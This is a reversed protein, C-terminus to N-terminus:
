VCPMLREAHMALAGDVEEAFRGYNVFSRDGFGLVAFKWGFRDGRRSIAALFGRASNPAEGAGYTSTLVLVASAKPYVTFDRLSAIHVDRGALSLQGALYRAFGWTSGSESGVLAVLDAAGAPVSAATRRGWRRLGGVWIAVGSVAFVPVTLVGLGLALALLPLGEGTHLAKVWELGVQAPRLPEESLVDGTFQDIFVHGSSTTVSFVDFWDGPIPYVITKVDAFPIAQLAHLQAPPVAELEALSEPITPPTEQGNSVVGFTVLTLYFGTVSMFVLPILSLRGTAAHLRELLRGRVPQLLGTWGGQRRLLLLFGTTCLVAMVLATGGAALRGGTGVLFSRHLEKMWMVVPNDSPQGLSAGSRIDILHREPGDEGIATL